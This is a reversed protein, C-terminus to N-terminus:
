FNLRGQQLGVQKLPDEEINFVKFRINKKFKEFRKEANVFFAQSIDSFTIEFSMQLDDLNNM